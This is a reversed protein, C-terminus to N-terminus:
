PATSDGAGAGAGSGDVDRGGDGLVLISRIRELAGSNADVTDALESNFAGAREVNGTVGDILIASDGIRERLENILTEAERLETRASELETRARQINATLATRERGALTGCTGYGAFFGVAVCLAGMSVFAVIKKVVNLKKRM